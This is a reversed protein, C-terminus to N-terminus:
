AQDMGAPGHEGELSEWSKETTKLRSVAQPFKDIV